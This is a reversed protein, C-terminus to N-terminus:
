GGVGVVHHLMETARVDVMQRARAEGDTADGIDGVCDATVGGDFGYLADEAGGGGSRTEL